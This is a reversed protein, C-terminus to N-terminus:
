EQNSSVKIIERAILEIEKIAKKAQHHLKTNSKVLRTYEYLSNGGRSFNEFVAGFSFVAKLCHVYDPMIERFYDFINSRNALPHTFSPIVYFVDRSEQDVEMIKQIIPLLNDEFAEEDNTSTRMPILVLDAVACAFRTHFRGISEGPVDLVLLENENELDEIEELMEDKKESSIHHFRINKAQIRDQERRSWWKGLTGQKDMEVLAISSFHRAVIKSFAITLALTSKGTGGKTQVFAIIM